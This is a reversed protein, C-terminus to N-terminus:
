QRSSRLQQVLSASDPVHSRRYALWPDDASPSRMWSMDGAPLGLLLATLARGLRPAHASPFVGEAIAFARDAELPQEIQLLCKGLILQGFYRLLAPQRDDLASRLASVAQGARGQRCLINARRIAAETFDPSIKLADEFLELAAQRELRVSMVRPSGIASPPQDLLGAILGANSGPRQNAAEVAATHAEQVARQIAPEAFYEHMSGQILKLFPDRPHLRGAEELHPVLEAYDEWDQLFAATAQYWLLSYTREQDSPFLKRREQLVRRAFAWHASRTSGGIVEGDLSVDSPTGTGAMGYGNAERNMMAIDAHMMAARGLRGNLVPGGENAVAQSYKLTLTLASNLTTLRWPAIAQISADSVGAVHRDVADRWVAAPDSQSLDDASMVPLSVTAVALSLLWAGCGRM